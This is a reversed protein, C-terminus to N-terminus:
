SFVHASMVSFVWSYNPDQVEFYQQMMPTVQKMPVM